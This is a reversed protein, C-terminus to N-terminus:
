CSFLKVLILLGLIQWVSTVPKFITTVKVLVNNWVIELTKEKCNYLEEENKLIKGNSVIMLDKSKFSELRNEYSDLKRLMNQLENIM